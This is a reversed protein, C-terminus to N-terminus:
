WWIRFSDRTSARLAGQVAWIELPINSGPPQDEFSLDLSTVGQANTVPLILVRDGTPFYGTLSVSAGSVPNGNQDRVVVYVRVTDTPRPFSQSVSAQPRLEVVRYLSMDDPLNPRLLEPDYGVSDFHIRGLAGLRMEGGSKGEPYWDLRFYEFYQVMREGEMRFASVPLGFQAASGHTEYFDLFAHCVPIDSPAILRCGPQEAAGPEPTPTSSPTGALLAGLRTQVVGGTGLELRANELYQVIKGSAPLDFSETIPYGLMAVGGHADFFSIFRADLTHGTEPYYRGDDQAQAAADTAPLLLLLSVLLALWRRRM